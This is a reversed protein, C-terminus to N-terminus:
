CETDLDVDDDRGADVESGLEHLLQAVCASASEVETFVWERSPSTPVKGTVVRIVLRGTDRWARVVVVRSHVDTVWCVIV